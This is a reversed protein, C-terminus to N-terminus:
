SEQRGQPDFGDFVIRAREADAVVLPDDFLLVRGPDVADRDDELRTADHIEDPGQLLEFGAVTVVRVPQDCYIGRPAHQQDVSDLTSSGPGPPVRVWRPRTEPGEIVWGASM